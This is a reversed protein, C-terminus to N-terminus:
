PLQVAVSALPTEDQESLDVLASLLIGCIKVGTELDPPAMRKIAPGADTALEEIVPVPGVLGSPVEVEDIVIVRFSAKMFVMDPITGVNSAEPEFLVYPVHECVVVAPKDCHVRAEVVESVFVSEIVAGIEIDPPVTTKWDPEATGSFEVMVPVPGTTASPVAVEVM